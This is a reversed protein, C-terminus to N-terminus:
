QFANPPIQGQAHSTKFTMIAANYDWNTQECLIYSFEMNLKTETFVKELIQQQMPPLKSLMEHHPNPIPPVNQSVSQGSSVGQVSEEAVKPVWPGTGAPYRILLMDSAVIMSNNPGPVVVFTRDFSRKMLPNHQSKGAMRSHMGGSKQLQPTQPKDVEEFEGHCVILIGGIQAYSWAEIAFDQPSELLRHLTRPLSQFIKSIPEVGKYLRAMRSRENSIRALNRSNGLYYNWAQSPNVSNELPLSPHLSDVQYSFQSETSYLSLLDMRNSDWLKLYNSIFGTALNQIDPNEFFLSQQNAVPLQTISRLRSEDRLVEGDLVVLMPLLNVLDLKYTPQQTTIPNNVVVLERLNYFKNKCSEFFRSKSIQNSELSLNKLHPFTSGLVSLNSSSTDNFNNRALSVTEVILKEQGALKMLAPFMKSSTSATAFLGNSVLTPDNIMETLDLMKTHPNYRSKLFGKLLDITSITGQATNTHSVKPDCVGIKLSNGAFRVGSWGELSIADKQSRVFAKIANSMPDVSVSHLGIKTKRSIFSVLDDKSANQWGQIEVQIANQNAMENAQHSISQSSQPFSARMGGNMDM